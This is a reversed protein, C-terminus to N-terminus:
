RPVMIGRRGRSITARDRLSRTLNHCLGVAVKARDRLSIHDGDHPNDRDRTSRWQLPQQLGAAIEAFAVAIGRSGGRPRLPQRSGM